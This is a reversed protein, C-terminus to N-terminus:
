GAASTAFFTMRALRRDKASEVMTLRAGHALALAKVLQLELKDRDDTVAGVLGQSDIDLITDTGSQRANVSVETWPTVFRLPYALLVMLIQKLAREDAEIRLEEPVLIELPFRFAEMESQLEDVVSWITQGLALPHKHLEFASAGHDAQSLLGEIFALLRQGSAHINEISGAADDIDRIQTHRMLESFGLIANLPTRLEHNLMAVFRTKAESAHIADETAKYLQRSIAGLVMCATATMLLLAQTPTATPPLGAWNARANPGTVSLIIVLTLIIVACAGGKARFRTAMAVAFPLPVLGLAQRVDPPLGVSSLDVIPYAVLSAALVAAATWLFARREARDKLLTRALGRRLILMVAAPGALTLYSCAHSLWWHRWALAPRDALIPPSEFGLSALLQAIGLVAVGGIGTLILVAVTYLAVFLPDGLRVLFYSHLMGVLLVAEVIELSVRAAAFAPYEIGAHFGLGAAAHVLAYFPAETWPRVMLAFALLAVPLSILSFTTGPVVPTLAQRSLLWAAAAFGAMWLWPPGTMASAPAQFRQLNGSTPRPVSM